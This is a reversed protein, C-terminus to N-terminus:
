NMLEAITKVTEKPKMNGSSVTATVKEQLQEPSEHKTKGRILYHITILDGTQDGPYLHKIGRAVNAIQFRQFGPKSSEVQSVYGGGDIFSTPFDVDLRFDTADQEGDNEVSVLLM